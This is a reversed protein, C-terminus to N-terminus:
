TIAAEELAGTDLAFPPYADVLSALYVLLRAEWRNLGRLFNYIGSPYSESLLVSIAAIALLVFGIIWLLALVLGSPIALILRLLANGASPTGTPTVDFRVSAQAADSTPFDDTLLSLYAYFRVIFGLWKTMDNGSEALYREPGKQSILIAALVPVALYVLGMIWGVAGALISLIVLILIRLFVQARDFAEPPKTDFAVGYDMM